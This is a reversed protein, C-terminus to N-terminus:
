TILCFLRHRRSTWVNSLTIETIQMNIVIRKFRFHDNNTFYNQYSLDYTKAMKPHAYKLWHFFFFVKLFIKISSHNPQQVQSRLTHLEIGRNPRWQHVNISVEIEYPEITPTECSGWQYFNILAIFFALRPLCESIFLCIFLM